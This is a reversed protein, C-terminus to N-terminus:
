QWLLWQRLCRKAQGTRLKELSKPSNFNCYGKTTVCWLSVAEIEWSCAGLQGQVLLLHSTKQWLSWAKKMCNVNQPGRWLSNWPIRKWGKIWSSTELYLMNKVFCYVHSLRHYIQGWSAELHRNLGMEEVPCENERRRMLLVPLFYSSFTWPDLYLCLSWKSNVTM